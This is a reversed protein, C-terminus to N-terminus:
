LACAAEAKDALVRLAQPLPETLVDEFHARIAKTIGTMGDRRVQAPDFLPVRGDKSCNM